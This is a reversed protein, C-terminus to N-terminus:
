RSAPGVRLLYVTGNANATALYRGDPTFAVAGVGGGFPGPGFTRLRRVGATRDWLVVTGDDACTALLPATPSFALDRIHGAHGRGTTEEGSAVNWLLVVAEPSDCVAALTRGDPSFAVENVARPATFPRSTGRRLDHLRVTRDEGCSALLTGDPSFAVGRVVGAHGPLSRSEKGTAVDWMRVAGGEGGAALTRGDPSFAVRSRSRSGRNLVRIEDGSSADWLVVTGDHSVSALRKGNPSFALGCVTDAHTALTHRVSRTHLDWLKVVHDDGASALTRGDSSVALAHLPATHGRRPFLEKGTTTDITQVHTARAGRTVFLVKGDRSLHHRAYDPVVSVEVSLPALAKRSDVTWRTFTHARRKVDNITAAFLARGDPAFALQSSPTEVTRILELTSARWLHFRQEDGSALYKGDPSYAVAGVPDRHDMQTQVEALKKGDWDFVKVCKGHFLAVALRRGNPSFCLSPVGAPQLEVAQVERGTRAIWVRLQGDSEAVLRKNDSSFAAAGAPQPRTQTSTFLERGTALDWTRVVGAPAARWATAALLQSDPSFAVWHIRGGPGKLRRSYRGTRADFLVVDEDLPVALVKGDPSQDMWGPSGVRPFLFRGDGLVATLEAPAQAPDGGGALALLHRPIDERRLELPALPGASRASPKAGFEKDPGRGNRWKLFALFAGLAGLLGVLCLVAVLRTSRSFTRRPPGPPAMEAMPEPVHTGSPPLQFQRLHATLLDAVERASGPRDRADRALLGDILDCLWAPVDPRVERIPQPTDECVNKLAAATSDGQFPPRGTCLTYLVAGLSFLDSRPDAPEGRAQEPAMFRPTGAIGQHELLGADAAALALGFDTIKVREVSNELLINAPKIDRHILGQVHAAALGSAVQLGIRLIEALGPPGGHGIRDELTPGAIFEM